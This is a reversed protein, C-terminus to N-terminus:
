EGAEIRERIKQWTLSLDPVDVLEQDRRDLEVADEAAFTTPVVEQLAPDVRAAVTMRDIGHEKKATSM